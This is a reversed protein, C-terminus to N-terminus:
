GRKCIECILADKPTPYVRESLFAWEMGPKVVRSAIWKDGSFKDIRYEDNNISWKFRGKKIQMADETVSHPAPIPVM